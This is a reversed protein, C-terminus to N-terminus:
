QNTATVDPNLPDLRNMNAVSSKKEESTSNRILFLIKWLDFSNSNWNVAELAYKHALDPLNSQELDQINSFYKMSNQPNFYSPIMTAEVAQVSRSVQASRWRSDAILPPIALILGVLGWISASLITKSDQFSDDAM